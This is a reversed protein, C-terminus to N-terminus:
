KSQAAAAEAMHMKCCERGAAAGAKHDCAEAAALDGKEHDCHKASAQAMEAKNVNCHSTAEAAPASAMEVKAGKGKCCAKTGAVGGHSAMDSAMISPNTEPEKKKCGTSMVLGLVAITAIASFRM